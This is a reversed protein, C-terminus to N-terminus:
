ASDPHDSRFPDAVDVPPLSLSCGLAGLAPLEAGQKIARAGAAEAWMGTASRTGRRELARKRALAARVAVCRQGARGAGAKGAPEAWCGPRPSGRLGPSKGLETSRTSCWTLLRRWSRISTAFGM